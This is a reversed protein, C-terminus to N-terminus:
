FAPRLRGILAADVHYISHQKNGPGLSFRVLDQYSAPGDPGAEEPLRDSTFFFTSGDESVYPCFEFAPSNVGPGMNVAKTWGGDPRRFSIYLDGRGYGAGHGTSTFVIYSEDRAVFANYENGQTNVSDGLAQATLYRGGVRESFFIDEGGPGGERVACWYLTGNRTISPYFENAKTNVPPGINVPESWGGERRSVFWIDFDKTGGGETLPRNSAFYLTQGDPSFHPELDAYTGSFPAVEPVSWGDAGKRSFVIVPFRYSSVTFFFLSGDPSLAADREGMHTSVIGPLFVAPKDGPEPAATGALAAALLLAAAVIIALPPRTPQKDQKM